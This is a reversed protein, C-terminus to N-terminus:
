FSESGVPSFVYVVWALAWNRVGVCGHIRGEDVSPRASNRELPTLLCQAAYYIVACHSSSLHGHPALPSWCQWMCDPWTEEGRSVQAALVGRKALAFCLLFQYSKRTFASPEKQRLMKVLCYWVWVCSWRPYMELFCRRASNPAYGVIQESSTLQKALAFAKM